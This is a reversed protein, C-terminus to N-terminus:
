TTGLRQHQNAMKYNISSTNPEAATIKWFIQGWISPFTRSLSHQLKFIPLNPSTKTFYYHNTVKVDRIFTESPLKTTVMLVRSVIMGTHKNTNWSICNIKSTYHLIHTYNANKAVRSAKNRTRYKIITFTIPTMPGESDKTNAGNGSWTTRGTHRTIHLLPLHKAHCKISMFSFPYEASGYVCTCLTVNNSSRPHYCTPRM